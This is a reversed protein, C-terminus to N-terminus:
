RRIRERSLSPLYYTLGVSAMHRHLNSGAFSVYAVKQSVFFYNASAVLNNYLAIEFGAAGYVSSISTPKGLASSRIYMSSVNVSTRQSLRQVLQLGATDGRSVDSVPFATFYGHSYYLATTTRGSTKSVSAQGSGTLWRSGGAKTSDVGGSLSVVWGRAPKLTFGGVQLHEINAGLRKVTGSLYHSYHISFNLWRNIQYEGGVGAAVVSQRFLDSGSYQVYDYNISTSISARKTVAYNVGAGATDRTQRRRDFYTQPSLGAVGVNTFGTTLFSGEDYYASTAVNSLQFTTKRHSRSYSFLVTGNQSLRDPQSIQKSYRYYSVGYITRFEFNKKEFNVYAQPFVSTFLLDKKEGSSLILSPSYVEAVGVSFGVHQGTNRIFNDAFSRARPEPDKRQPQEPVFIERGTYVGNSTPNPDNSPTGSNQAYVTWSMALLSVMYCFSCTRLM